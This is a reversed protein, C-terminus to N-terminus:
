VHVTKNSNNTALRLNNAPKHKLMINNCMYSNNQPAMAGLRIDQRCPMVACDPCQQAMKGSRSQLHQRPQCRRGKGAINLIIYCNIAQLAEWRLAEVSLPEM